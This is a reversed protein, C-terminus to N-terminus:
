SRAEAAHLHECDAASEGSVACVPDSVKPLRQGAFDAGSLLAAILDEDLDDCRIPRRGAVQEDRVCRDCLGDVSMCGGCTARDCSGCAAVADVTLGCGAECRM